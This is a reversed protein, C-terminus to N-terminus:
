TFSESEGSVRSLFEIYKGTEDGPKKLNSSLTGIQDERVFRRYRIFAEDGAHSDTHRKMRRFFRCAAAYIVSAPVPRLAMLILAEGFGAARIADALEPTMGRGASLAADALKKNDATM